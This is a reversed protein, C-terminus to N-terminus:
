RNRNGMVKIANYGVVNLEVKRGRWNISNNLIHESSENLMDIAKQLRLYEEVYGEPLYATNSEEIKAENVKGKHIFQLNIVGADVEAILQKLTKYENQKNYATASMEGNLFGTLGNLYDDVKDINLDTVNGETLEKLSDKARNLLVLYETAERKVKGINSNNISVVIKQKKSM